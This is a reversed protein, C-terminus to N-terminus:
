IKKVREAISHESATFLNAADMDMAPVLSSQAPSPLIPNSALNLLTIYFIIYCM